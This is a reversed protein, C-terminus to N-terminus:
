QYMMVDKRKVGDIQRPQLYVADHVSGADPRRKGPMYQRLRGQCAGVGEIGPQLALQLECLCSNRSRHAPPPAHQTASGLHRESTWDGKFASQRLENLELGEAAARFIIEFGCGVIQEESEGM